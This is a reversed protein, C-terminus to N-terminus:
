RPHQPRRPYRRGRRLVRAFLLSLIAVLYGPTAPQQRAGIHCSACGGRAPPEPKPKDHDGGTEVVPVDFAVAGVGLLTLDARAQEIPKTGSCGDTRLADVPGAAYVLYTTGVELELDCADPTPTALHLTEAEPGRWTRTVELTTRVTGDMTDLHGVVRGEFVATSSDLAEQPTPSKCTCVGSQNAAAPSAQAVLAAVLAATRLFHGCFYATPHRTPTSM